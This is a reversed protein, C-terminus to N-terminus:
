SRTQGNFLVLTPPPYQKGEAQFIGSWVDETEALVTKVFQTMQDNAQATPRSAPSQSQSQGPSSQDMM